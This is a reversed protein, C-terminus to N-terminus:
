VEFIAKPFGPQWSEGVLENMLISVLGRKRIAIGSRNRTGDSGANQSVTRSCGGVYSRVAVVAAM